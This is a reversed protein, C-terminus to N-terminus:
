MLANLSEEYIAKLNTKCLTYTKFGVKSKTDQLKEEL